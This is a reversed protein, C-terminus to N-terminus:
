VLSATLFSIIPSFVRSVRISDLFSRYAGVRSAPLEPTDNGHIRCELYRITYDIFYGDEPTCSRRWMRLRSLPVASEARLRERLAEEEQQRRLQEFFEIRSKEIVEKLEDDDDDNDTLGPSVIRQITAADPRRVDDDDDEDHTRVSRRPTRRTRKTGEM